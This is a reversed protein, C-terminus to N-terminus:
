ILLLFRSVINKWQHKLAWDMSSIKLDAMNNVCYEIGSLVEDHDDGNVRKGSNNECIADEVGCFKAGVVPTGFMNAELAVIGYGEVDGNPQNESLLMFIDAAKYYWELDQHQKVVGHFTIHQEVGLRQGLEELKKQDVPRGVIHYHVNPYKKLINPLAKIVRHQGKRPSVHGVTLLSPIGKLHIQKLEKKESQNPMEIGNPIVHTSKSKRDLINTPLLSRTFQSVPVLIDASDISKHTLKRWLRQQLNVESGHLIAITKIHPFKKKILVGQWLSFKGTLIITQPTHNTITKQTILWRKLYTYLSGYRKYRIIEFPQNQDFLAVEETTSYDAPTLVTLAVGENFLAKSLSFAHFGIGGPGPPYESSLLLVKKM